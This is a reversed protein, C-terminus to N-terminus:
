NGRVQKELRHEKHDLNVRNWTRLDTQLKAEALLTLMSANLGILQVKM